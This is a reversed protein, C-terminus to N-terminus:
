RIAQRGSNHVEQTAAIPHVSPKASMSPQCAPTAPRNVVVSSYRCSTPLTASMGVMNRVKESWMRVSWGTNQVVWDWNM